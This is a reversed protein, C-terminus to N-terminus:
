KKFFLFDKKRFSYFFLAFGSISVSLGLFAAIILWWHNFNKRESYDMIHLMWLFDYIRWINGRVAKLSGDEPHVYFSTSDSNDFDVRWVPYKGRYEIVPKDILNISQIASSGSYRSLVIKRVIDESVPSILEGSEANVLAIVGLNNKFEYVPLNLLHRLKAEEIKGFDSKLSKAAGELSIYHGLNELFMPVNKEIVDESRVTEIPVFSMFLGSATWLLVQVGVTLALWKHWKRAQISFKM